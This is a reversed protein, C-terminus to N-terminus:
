ECIDIIGTIGDLKILKKQSLIDINKYGIGCICPVNLERAIIAAHCLLGGEATIIASVDMLAPVWEPDTYDALLIKGKLTEKSNPKTKLFLPVGECKGPSVPVGKIVGEKEVTNTEVKSFTKTVPRFQLLILGGDKVCFEFDSVSDLINQLGILSRGVSGKKSKLKNPQKTNTWFEYIPTAKGSVLKEGNGEVYELHGSQKDSGIWVGAYQPSYYEQLITSMHPKETKFKNIYSLVRENNVSQTVMSISNLIENKSVNLYTDFLGAFSLKAGDEVTASSRVAYFINPLVDIENVYLSNEISAVPIVFTQPIKIKCAKLKALGLSKGGIITNISNFVYSHSFKAITEIDLIPCTNLMYLAYLTQKKFKNLYPFKNIVFKEFEDKIKHHRHIIIQKHYINQEDQWKKLFLYLQIINDLKSCNRSTDNIIGNLVSPNSKDAESLISLFDKDYSYTLQEKLYDTVVSGEIILEILGYYCYLEREYFYKKDICCDSTDIVKILKEIQKRILIINNNLNKISYNSNINNIIKTFFKSIQPNLIADLTVMEIWQEDRAFSKLKDLFKVYQGYTQNNFNYLKSKSAYKFKIM